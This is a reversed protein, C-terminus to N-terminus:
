SDRPSPSTYLLCVPAPPQPAPTPPPPVVPATARPPEVPATTGSPEVSNPAVAPASPGPTPPPPEASSATVEGRDEVEPTAAEATDDDDLHESVKDAVDDFKSKAQKAKDLAGDLSDDSFASQWNIEDSM